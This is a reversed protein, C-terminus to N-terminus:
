TRSRRAATARVPKSTRCRTAISSRSRRAATPSATNSRTPGSCSRSRCRSPVWRSARSTPSSPRPASRCSSRWATAAGSASRACRTRSATPPRSCTRLLHARRTPAPSTKGISRSASAIAPGARAARLARHQLGAPVSGASLRRLGRSLSDRGREDSAARGRHRRLHARGRHDAAGPRAPARGALRLLPRARAAAMRPRGHPAPPGRGQLTAVIHGVRMQAVDQPDVDGRADRRADHHREVQIEAHAVGRAQMFRMPKEGLLDTATIVGAVARTARRARLAPARRAPDHHAHARTSRSARAAHHRRLGRAPRDDGLLRSRRAHRARRSAARRRARGAPLRTLTLPSYERM